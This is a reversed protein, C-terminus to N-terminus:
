SSAGLYYDYLEDNANPVITVTVSLTSEDNSFAPSISDITAYNQTIYREIKSGNKTQRHFAVKFKESPDRRKLTGSLTGTTDTVGSTDYRIGLTILTKEKVTFTRTEKANRYTTAYVGFGAATHDSSEISEAGDDFADDTLAGVPDWESTVTTGDNLTFAAGATPVTATLSGLLVAYKGWVPANAAPDGFLPATAM